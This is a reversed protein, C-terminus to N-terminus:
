PKENPGGLKNRFTTMGSELATMRSELVTMRSELAAMRSDLTSVKSKLTEIGETIPKLKSDVLTGLDQQLEERHNALDEQLLRRHDALDQHLKQRLDESARAARDSKLMLVVALGLLGGALLVDFLWDGLVIDGAKLVAGRIDELFPASVFTLIALTPVLWRRDYWAKTQKPM